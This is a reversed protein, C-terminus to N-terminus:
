PRPSEAPAAGPAEVSAGLEQAADWFRRAADLARTAEQETTHHDIEFEAHHRLEELMAYDDLLDATAKGPEIFQANFGVRVEAETFIKAGLAFLLGAAARHAVQYSHGVSSSYWDAKLHNEAEELAEQALHFQHELTLFNTHNRRRAM